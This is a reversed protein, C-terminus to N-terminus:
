AALLPTWAGAADIQKACVLAGDASRRVEVVHSMGPSLRVDVGLDFGHSGDGMGAAALDARLENAVTFAVIAGDVVLDLCVPVNPRTVDQAWGGMHLVDDAGILCRDLWARVPGLDSAERAATARRALRGRLAALEPGLGARMAYAKPASGADSTQVADFGARVGPSALFSEAPMNEALLLDHSDLEIHWYTLDAMAEGRTISTGNVLHGAAALLGDVFLAHDPSVLLDRCPVGDAIANARVRVPRDAAPASLGRYHRSGIWRIPRFEGAQTVVMDGVAMREVAFPGGHTSISTGAVFCPVRGVPDIGAADSAARTETVTLERNFTQSVTFIDNSRPLFAIGITNPDNQSLPSTSFEARFETSPPYFNASEPARFALVGGPM